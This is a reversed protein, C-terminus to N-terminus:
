LPLLAWRGEVLDLPCPVNVFGSMFRVCPYQMPLKTRVFIKALSDYSSGLIVVAFPRRYTHAIAKSEGACTDDYGSKGGM